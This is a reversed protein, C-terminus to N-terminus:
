PWNFHTPNADLVDWAGEAIEDFLQDWKWSSFGLFFWYDAISQNGSRLQEIEQLTAIQDLFYIGPIVEPFKDIVIRRTLAVLPMANNILPGGFTLPSEGLVEAGKELGVADWSMRKNIILGQFGNNQDAKSILIKSKAFPEASIKDTAMLISGVVVLPATEDSGTSTHSKLRDYKIVRKHAQNTLMVEHLQEKAVPTEKEM